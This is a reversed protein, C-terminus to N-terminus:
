VKLRGEKSVHERLREAEEPTTDRGTIAKHLALIGELTPKAIVPTKPQNKRRQIIPDREIRGVMM